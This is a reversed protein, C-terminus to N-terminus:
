RLGNPLADAIERAITGRLGNVKELESGVVAHALAGATASDFASMGSALMASISGSLVDGSGPVALAPSGEVIMRMEKGKAVLTDRGKLVAVGAIKALQLCSSVRQMNVAHSTSELIHAAEGSHPTIVTDQRFPLEHRLEALFYLADADLLLPKEWNQWFWSVAAKLETNRGIGPGIAAAGCRNIWPAISDSLYETCINNSVTKLPVLIAEPLLVSASDAMFDPIALVVLGAGSRLAGLGTLLPAGRYNVSGGFILVGGRDGKHIDCALVPLLSSLDNKDFCTISDESGLVSEAEIGIDVVVIRGCKERAPSICMGTKLALFTATFEANVCPSYIEGTKPNIGSPIDLSMVHFNRNCLSILRAVEGRPVGSTGTGLLADVVYDCNDSFHNIESEDMAKSCKISLASSNIKLLTRLNHQADGNYKDNEASTIISISKGAQLLYRAAVFGDGGNNGPGALILFKEGAPCTCMLEHAANMGANEMLLLSPIGHKEVALIDAMRVDDPDYYKRM